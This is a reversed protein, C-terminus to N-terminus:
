NREREGRAGTAGHAGRDIVRTYSERPPGEAVGRILIQKGSYFKGPKKFEVSFIWGKYFTVHATQSKGDIEIHLKFLCDAFRADGIGLNQDVEYYRFVNIRGEPMREVFFSEGLQRRVAEAEDVRLSEVVAAIVQREHPHLRWTGDGCLFHILHSLRRLLTGLM